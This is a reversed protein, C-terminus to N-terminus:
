KYVPIYKNVGEEKNDKDVFFTNKFETKKCELTNLRDEQAKIYDIYEKVESLVNQPLLSLNVFVGSKNENLKCLNKSLIKLIELQDYKNMSEVVKKINEIDDLNM